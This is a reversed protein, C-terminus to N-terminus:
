SDASSTSSRVSWCVWCPASRRTSSRTPHPPGDALPTQAIAAAVTRHRAALELVHGGSLSFGWIGIRAADVEALNAAHDLAAQWDALQHRINIVQRPTAGSEGFHRYDFALVSFGAAHFRSAFRDTGPEKTVGAGGAMIVCAGNTGPYHWAACETDGSAFAVKRRATATDLDHGHRRSTERETM